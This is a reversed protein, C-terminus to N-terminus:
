IGSSGVDDNDVDGNHNQGYDSYDDTDEDNDYDNVPSMM